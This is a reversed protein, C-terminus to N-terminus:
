LFTIGKSMFLTTFFQSMFIEYKLDDIKITVNIRKKKTIMIM